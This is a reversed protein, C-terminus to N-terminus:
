TCVGGVTLTNNLFSAGDAHLERTASVDRGEIDGSTTLNGTMVGGSKLVFLSTDVNISGSVNNILNNVAISIVSLVVVLLLLVLLVLM